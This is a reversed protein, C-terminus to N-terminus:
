GPFDVVEADEDGPVGTTTRHYPFDVVEGWRTDREEVVRDGEVLHFGGLSGLMGVLLSAFFIM